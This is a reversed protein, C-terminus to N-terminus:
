MRKVRANLVRYVTYRQNQASKHACVNSERGGKSYHKNGRARMRLLPNLLRTKQRDTPRDTSLSINFCSFYSTIQESFPVIVVNSSNKSPRLVSLAIYSRQSSCIWCKKDYPIHLFSHLLKYFNTRQKKILFCAVITHNSEPDTHSTGPYPNRCKKGFSGCNSSCTM